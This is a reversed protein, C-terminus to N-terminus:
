YFSAGASLIKTVLTHQEPYNGAEILVKEPDPSSVVVTGDVVLVWEGENGEVRGTDVARARM